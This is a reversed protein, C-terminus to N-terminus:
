WKFFFSFSFKGSSILTYEGSSNLERVLAKILKTGYSQGGALISEDFGNGNDEYMFHFQDQGRSLSIHIVDAKSGTFAYKLSNTVLENCLLALSFAESIKVSYPGTVKLQVLENGHAAKLSTGLESILSEFNVAPVFKAKLLLEHIFKFSNVRNQLEEFVSRDDTFKSKAIGILINLRNFNGVVRHNLEKELIRIKRFLRFVIISFIALVVLILSISLIINRQGKNIVSQRKNELNAISLSDEKELTQYKVLSENLEQQSAFSLSSDKYNSYSELYEMAKEYNGKRKNLLYLKFLATELEDFASNQKALIRASDYCSLAKDYDGLGYYSNGLRLYVITIVQEDKVRKAISWANQLTDIAARYNKELNLVEGLGAQAYAFYVPIKGALQKAQTFYNGAQFDELKLYMEGMNALTLSIVPTDVKSVFQMKIKYNEIAKQYNSIYYYYMAFVEYVAILGAPNNQARFIDICENLDKTIAPEVRRKQLELEYKNLTYFAKVTKMQPSSLYPISKQVYYIASDILGHNHFNLATAHLAEGMLTSDNIDQAVNFAEKSLSIATDILGENMYHVSWERLLLAQFHKSGYKKNLQEASKYHTFATEFNGNSESIYGLDILILIQENEKKLKQAIPLAKDYYQKTENPNIQIRKKALKLLLELKEDEKKTRNIKDIFYSVSDSQAHVMQLQSCLIIVLVKMVARPYTSTLM